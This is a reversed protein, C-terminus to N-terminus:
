GIWVRKVRQSISTLIEYPITEAWDAWLNISHTDGFIEVEQNIEVDLGTVNVFCMDMCVNGVITAPQNNILVHAKENGFVRRIGDAYGVPLVAIKEEKTSRYERNYGISESPKLINIKSIHTKLQLANQLEPAKGVGFLGIGLRVLNFHAEPYNVIGSTNCIHSDIRYNLESQIRGVYTKFRNIQEFTFTKDPNDSEALHSYVSKIRIEPQSKIYTLLEDIENEVFGLRNMGTEVKIHVPYGTKEHLILTRTFEDLQDISFIAPELNHRIIDDFASPHANMVLIPLSIGTKRLDIGEDAFAVGLYDVGEHELFESMEKSGSGYSSAKVMVLLKTEPKILSRFFTLNQRLAQKNIELYTQHHKLSLNNIVPSLGAKYSGKFLVVSNETKQLTEYVEDFSLFNTSRIKSCLLVQHPNFRNLQTHIETLDGNFTENFALVVVRKRDGAVEKQQILAQELGDMDMNYADNILTNNNKGDVTEMRMIVEPLINLKFQIKNVPYNLERLVMLVNCLNDLKIQSTTNVEFLGYDKVSIQTSGSTKFVQIESNEWNVNKATDFTYNKSVVWKSKAFLKGKEAFKESRSSFGEDHAVGLNTFVGFDPQIMKSLTDMEGVQSIGSEIIALTHHDQMELLSLAVGIQSNFSKPSRVIHYEDRLFHYLWEKIITKGSSGAVGIIPYNFSERHHQALLQLSILPNEVKLYVADAFKKIPSSQQVVFARCGKEYADKIFDIGDRKGKLCFFLTQSGDVISRTDISVSSLQVSSNGEIEAGIIQAITIHSYDLKM